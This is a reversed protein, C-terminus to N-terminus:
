IGDYGSGKELIAKEKRLAVIKDIEEYFINDPIFEWYRAISHLSEQAEEMIFRGENSLDPIIRCLDCVGLEHALRYMHKCPKNIDSGSIAWDPCTCSVLTTYYPVHGSGKFEGTQNERNLKRPIYKKDLARRMRSVSEYIEIYDLGEFVNDRM